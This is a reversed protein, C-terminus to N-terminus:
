FSPLHVDALNTCRSRRLLFELGPSKNFEPIISLNVIGPGGSCSLVFRGLLDRAAHMVNRGPEEWCGGGPRRSRGGKLNMAATSVLHAKAAM